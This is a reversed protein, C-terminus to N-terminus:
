AYSPIVLDPGLRFGLKEFTKKVFELGWFFSISLGTRSCSGCSGACDASEDAKM